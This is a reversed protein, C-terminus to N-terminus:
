VGQVIRVAGGDSIFDRQGQLEKIEAVYKSASHLVWLTCPFWSTQGHEPDSGRTPPDQEKCSLEWLSRSFQSAKTKTAQSGEM